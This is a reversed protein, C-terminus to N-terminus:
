EKRKFCVQEGGEGSRGVWFVILSINEDNLGSGSMEGDLFLDRLGRGASVSMIAAEVFIGSSWWWRPILLSTVDGLTEPSAGM